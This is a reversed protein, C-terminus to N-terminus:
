PEQVDSGVGKILMCHSESHVTYYFKSRTLILIPSSRRWVESMSSISPVSIDSFYIIFKSHGKHHNGYHFGETNFWVAYECVVNIWKVSRKVHKGFLLDLQAAYSGHNLKVICEVILSASPSDHLQQKMLHASDSIELCSHWVTDRMDLLHLLWKWWRNFCITLQVMYLIYSFIYLRLKGPKQTRNEILGGTNGAHKLICWHRM